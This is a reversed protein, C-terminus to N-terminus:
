PAFTGPTVCFTAGNCKKGHILSASKKTTKNKYSLVELITEPFPNELLLGYKLECWLSDSM